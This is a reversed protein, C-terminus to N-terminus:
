DACADDRQEDTLLSQFATMIEDTPPQGHKLQYMQEFVEAPSMEALSQYRLVHEAQAGFSDPRVLTEKLRVLRPRQGTGFTKLQEELKMMADPMPAEVHLDLYLYPSLEQEWELGSVREIIDDAPGTLEFISRWCPVEVETVQAAARPKDPDVEVTLVYRPSRAETVDTPIPSGPYWANPGAIELKQHVHGLAVYAYRPDFITPPLSGFAEILHIPTHYAGEVEGVGTPFCTLHGTAIIPVDPYAEEALDAMTAYLSRFGDIMSDRIKTQTLGATQVGLRSEHIYPVAMIVAEVDGAADRIPCLCRGWTSKDGLLGGVVHIHLAELVSGPADLRSPSDHNGGTVVIQRLKTESACRALFEYYLKLCRASPQVYHFTDGAHILVDIERANIEDILWDLFRRHEAERPAQEASVGLHWDSTHLIKMTTTRQQSETDRERRVM